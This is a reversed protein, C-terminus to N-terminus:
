ESAALDRLGLDVAISAAVIGYAVSIVTINVKHWGAVAPLIASTLSEGIDVVRGLAM